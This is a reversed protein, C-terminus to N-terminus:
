GNSGVAVMRVGQNGSCDTAEPGYCKPCNPRAIASIFSDYLFATKTDSDGGIRMTLSRMNDALIFNKHKITWIGPPNMIHGIRSGYAMIGKAALCGGNGRAFIWGIECSGATNGSFPYIEIDDCNVDPVAYGNGNSGQCLNNTV